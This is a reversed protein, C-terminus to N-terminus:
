GYVVTLDRLRMRWYTKKNIVFPCDSNKDFGVLMGKSLGYYEAEENLFEVYGRDAMPAEISILIGSETKNEVPEPPTLFIFDGLTRMESDREYAYCMSQYGGEENYHVYFTDSDIRNQENFIISHHFYLKDGVLVPSNKKEPIGIVEGCFARHMHPNYKTELVLTTGNNLEIEDNFMKDVRVIFGELPKM